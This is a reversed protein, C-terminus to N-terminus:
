PIVDKLCMNIRIEDSLYIVHIFLYYQKNSIDSVAHRTTVHIQLRYRIFNRLNKKKKQIDIYKLFFHLIFVETQWINSDLKTTLIKDSAM